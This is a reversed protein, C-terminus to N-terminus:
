YDACEARTTTRGDRSTISSNSCYSPKWDQFSNGFAQIQESLTPVRATPPIPKQLDAIMQENREDIAANRAAQTDLTAVQDCGDQYGLTCSKAFIHRNFNDGDLWFTNSAYAYCSWGDGAGCGAKAYTTTNNNKEGFAHYATTAAMACNDKSAEADCAKQYAAFSKPYAEDEYALTGEIACAGINGLECGRAAMARASVPNKQVSNVGHHFSAAALECNDANGYDCSRYLAHEAQDPEAQVGEGGKLFHYAMYCGFSVDKADLFQDDGPESMCARRFGTLSIEADTEVDSNTAFPSFWFGQSVCASALGRDCGIRYSAGVYVPDYSPKDEDSFFAPAGYCLLPDGHMCRISSAEKYIQLARPDEIPKNTADLVMGTAYECMELNGYRCAKLLYYGTYLESKPVGDLGKLHQDALNECAGYGGDQGCQAIWEPNGLDPLTAPEFGFADPTTIFPVALMAAVASLLRLYRLM